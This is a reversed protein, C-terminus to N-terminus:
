KINVHSMVNGKSTFDYKQTAYRKDVELEPLDIELVDTYIDEGKTGISLDAKDEESYISEDEIEMEYNSEEETYANNDIEEESYDYYNIDTEIFENYKSEEENYCDSTFVEELYSANNNLSLEDYDYQRTLYCDEDVETKSNVPGSLGFDGIFIKMNDDVLINRCHFDRHVLELKHLSNLSKAIDVLIRAREKWSIKFKRSRLFNRLDGHTARKIVMAYDSMEPYTTLGYFPIACIGLCKYHIKFENLFKNEFDKSNKLVKLIINLSSTERLEFPNWRGSYIKSYGSQELSEIHQIDFIPIWEIFGDCTVSEKGIVNRGCRNCLSLNQQLGFKEGKKKYFFTNTFMVTIKTSELHSKINIMAVLNVSM